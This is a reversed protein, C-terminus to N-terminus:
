QQNRPTLESTPNISIRSTASDALWQKWRNIAARNLDTSSTPDYGYTENTLRKLSYLALVRRAVQAHELDAVLESVQSMKTTQPNLGVFRTAIPNSFGFRTAATELQQSATPDSQLCSAIAQIHADWYDKYTPDNLISFAPDLQGLCYGWMAALSRQDTTISQSHVHSGTAMSLLEDIGADSQVLGSLATVDPNTLNDKLEQVTRAIAEPIVDDYSKQEGDPKVVMWKNAFLVHEQEQHEVIARGSIGLCGLYYRPAAATATMGQPLFPRIEFILEADPTLATVWVKGKPTQIELTEDPCNCQLLMFCRQVSLQPLGHSEQLQYRSVGSFAFNWAKGRPSRVQLQSRGGPLVVIWDDQSEGAAAEMVVTGIQSGWELPPLAPSTAPVGAIPAPALPSSAPALPSSAPPVSTTPSPALPSPALPSPTSANAVSSPLNTLPTPAAPALGMSNPGNPEIRAPDSTEFEEIPPLASINPTPKATVETPHPETPHPETPHLEALPFAAMNGADLSPLSADSTSVDQAVADQAVTGQTVADQADRDKPAIGEAAIPTPEAFGPILNTQNELQTTPSELLPAPLTPIELAASSPPLELDM